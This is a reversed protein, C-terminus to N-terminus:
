ARKKYVYRFLVVAGVVFAAYLSFFRWLLVFAGEYGDPIINGMVAAVSVEAIGAAGPSPSFYFILMMVLQAYVVEWFPASIGLGKLVVYAIVFKNFYVLCTLVFGAILILRGRKLFYMWLDHYRGFLEGWFRLKGRKELWRGLVPVRRLLSDVASQFKRPNILATVSLIVILSFALISGKVVYQLRFDIAAPDAFITVALGCLPFFVATGLFCGLFSIVAADFVNMGKKYLVYIQGPGGGTQSPTVGGLFVNALSAQVSNLFSIKPCVRAAFIYIRAGSLVMDCIVLVFGLMMFRGDFARLHAISGTISSRYMMVALGALSLVVFIRLGRKVRAISPPNQVQEM